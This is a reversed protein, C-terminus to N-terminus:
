TQPLVPPVFEPAAFMVSRLAAYGSDTCAQAQMTVGTDISMCAAEALSEAAQVMTLEMRYTAMGLTTLAPYYVCGWNPAVSEDPMLIEFPVAGAGKTGGVGKGGESWVRAPTTSTDAYLRTNHSDVNYSTATATHNSIRLPAGGQADSANFKAGAVGGILRFRERLYPQNPFGLFGTLPSPDLHSDVPLVDAAMNAALAPAYRADGSYMTDYYFGLINDRMKKSIAVLKDRDLGAQVFQNGSDSFDTSFANTNHDFQNAVGPLAQQLMFWSSTQSYAIQASMRKPLEYNAPDYGTPPSGQPMIQSWNWGNAASGGASFRYNSMQVQDDAQGAIKDTPMVGFLPFIVGSSPDGPVKWPDITLDQPLGSGRTTSVTLGSWGGLNELGSGSAERGYTLPLGLALGANGDYSLDLVKKATFTRGDLTKLTYGTGPGGSNKTAAIVGGTAYATVNRGQARTGDLMQRCIVNFSRPRIRFDAGTGAVTAGGDVSRARTIMWRALGGFASTDKVDTFGLGNATVGGFDSATFDNWAGIMAVSKGRSAVRYGAACAFASWGVIAVDVDTVAPLFGPDRIDVDGWQASDVYNKYAAWEEQMQTMSLARGVVGGLFGKNTSTPSAVGNLELFTIPTSYGATAAQYANNVTAALTPGSWGEIQTANRRQVTAFKTASWSATSGMTNSSAGLCKAAMTGGGSKMAFGIGYGTTADQAGCEFNTTVNTGTFFGGLRVDNVPLDKLQIGTNLRNGATAASTYGTAVNTPDAANVGARADVFTPAGEVILDYTGPNKINILAAPGSEPIPIYRAIDLAWIGAKKLRQIYRNISYKRGTTPTYGKAAYATFLTNAEAEYAFAKLQGAATVKVVSSAANAGTATASINIDGASSASLGVYIPASGNVAAGLAFRGDNPTLNPTVGAPINNISGVLTGPATGVTFALSGTITLTPLPVPPPTPAGMLAAGQVVFTALSGIQIGITYRTGPVIPTVGPVLARGALAVIGGGDNVLVPAGLLNSRIRALPTNAPAGAQLSGTSLSIGQGAARAMQDVFAAGIGGSLDASVDGIIRARHLEVLGALTDINTLTAVITTGAPVKAGDLIEDFALQFKM